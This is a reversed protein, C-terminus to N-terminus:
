SLPLQRVRQQAEQCLKIRQRTEELSAMQTKMAIPNINRGETVAEATDGAVTIAAKNAFRGPITSVTKSILGAISQATTISKYITFGRPGVKVQGLLIKTYGGHIPPPTYTLTKGGQTIKTAIVNGESRGLRMAPNTKQAWQLNYENSPKLKKILQSALGPQTVDELAGGARVWRINQISKYASYGSSIVGLVDFAVTAMDLQRSIKGDDIAGSAIQLSSGAIGAVGSIIGAALLMSSGGSPAALAIGIIGTIVGFVGFIIKKIDLHGSPDTFNIPDNHCYAYANHVGEGFPALSDPANFRMLSPQYVRYGQGLHYGNLIPDLWEGNFGLQTNLSTMSQAMALRVSTPLLSVGGAVATTQGIKILFERRNLPKIFVSDKNNM